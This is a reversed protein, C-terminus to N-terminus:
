GSAETWPTSPSLRQGRGAGGSRALRAYVTKRETLARDAIVLIPIGAQEAEVMLDTLKTDDQARREAVRRLERLIRAQDADPVFPPRPM